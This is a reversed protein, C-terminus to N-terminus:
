EKTKKFGFNHLLSLMRDVCSCREKPSCCGCHKDTVATPAARKSKFSALELFVDFVHLAVLSWLFTSVVGALLKNLETYM